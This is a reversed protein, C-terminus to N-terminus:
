SMDKILVKAELFGGNRVVDSFEIKLGNLDLFAKPYTPADLMRIHDYVGDIGKVESLESQSSVRRKFEVIEGEQACPSPESEAIFKIVDYIKESFDLFIDHAKKDKLDLDIKKYIDGGDLIDTM